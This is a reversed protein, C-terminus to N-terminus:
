GLAYITFYRGSCGGDVILLQVAALAALEMLGCLAIRRDQGGRLATRHGVVLVRELDTRTPRGQDLIKMEALLNEMEVVLPNGLAHHMRAAVARM